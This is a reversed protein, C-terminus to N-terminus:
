EKNLGLLKIANGRSIKYYADYSIKGNLVADDLFKALKLFDYQVNSTACIDTGYFLRDQFEELFKYGYEVDRTIANYGSGASLDGLLNPYKRMLEAVRGETVKGKPQGHRQADNEVKSIEAWFQQSHGLFKLNPFTQLAKELGPLGIDDVLGYDNGLDGIHFTLPLGAKEVHKFLNFTRPDTIPLNATIEGIGKAGHKKCEELFLTFDTDKSNDYQMPCFSCFWVFRDPYKEAILYNEYNSSTVMASNSVPLLIGMEVGLNDYMEILEEPTAFAYGGYAIWKSPSTHVHIDIKKVLKM